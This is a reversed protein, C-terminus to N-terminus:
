LSAGGLAASLGYSLGGAAFGVLLPLWPTEDEDTLFYTGLSFVAGSLAVSYGLPGLSLGTPQPELLGGTTELGTGAFAGASSCAGGEFCLRDVPSSALAAAMVTLLGGAVVLGAGGYILVGRLSSRSSPVVAREVLLTTTQKASILVEHRRSSGDAAELTLVHPGASIETVVTRAEGSLGAVDGDIRVTEGGSTGVIELAGFPEWHARASLVPRLDKEVLSELFRRTDDEDFMEARPTRLLVADEDIRADSIERWDPSRRDAGHHLSLALDLDVLMAFIRDSAGPKVFNSLVLLLRPISRDKQVRELHASFPLVQGDPLELASYDYDTRIRRTMCGLAGECSRPIADELLMIELDTHDKFLASLVSVLASTRTHAVEGASTITVVALPARRGLVLAEEASARGATFLCALVAGGLVPIRM